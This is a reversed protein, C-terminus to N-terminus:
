RKIWRAALVSVPLITCLMWILPIKMFVAAVLVVAMVALARPSKLFPLAMRLGMAAVLGAAAAGVAQVTQSVIPLHGYTSYLGGVAVVILAPPAVLGTLAAVAGPFGGLRAGTIVAINVVNGGPMFNSLAFLNIFEEEGFWGKKEILLWRVWPMVGGFGVLAISAFGLFLEFPSVSKEKIPEFAEAM